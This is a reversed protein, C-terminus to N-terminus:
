GRYLPLLAVLCVLSPWLCVGYQTAKPTVSKQEITRMETALATPLPVADGPETMGLQELRVRCRPCDRYRRM